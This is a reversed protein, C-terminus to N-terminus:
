SMMILIRSSCEPERDVPERDVSARDVPERDV